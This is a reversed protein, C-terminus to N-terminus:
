TYRRVIHSIEKARSPSMGCDIAKLELQRRDLERAIRIDTNASIANKLNIRRALITRIKMMPVLMKMNIPNDSNSHRHLMTLWAEDIVNLNDMSALM